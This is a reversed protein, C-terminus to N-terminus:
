IGGYYVKKSLKYLVVGSVVNCVNLIFSYSFQSEKDNIVFDTLIISKGLNSYVLGLAECFVKNTLKESSLNVFDFKMIKFYFFGTQTLTCFQSQNKLGKFYGSSESGKPKNNQM